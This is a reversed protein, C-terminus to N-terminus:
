NDNVVNQKKTIGCMMPYKALFLVLSDPASTMKRLTAIVSVSASHGCTNKSEFPISIM